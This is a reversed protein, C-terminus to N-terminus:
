DISSVVAKISNLSKTLLRYKKQNNSNKLVNLASQLKEKDVKYKKLFYKTYKDDILNLEQVLKFPWFESSWEVYRDQVNNENKYKITKKEHKFVDKYAINDAIIAEVVKNQSLLTQVMSEADDSGPIEASEDAIVDGRTAGSEDDLVEDISSEGFRCNKHLNADYVLAPVGRTSLVQNICAQANTHREPDQWARYQCAASICDFLLNLLDHREVNITKCRNYMRDITYWFRLILASCYINKNKSDKEDIAKCYSNALEDISYDEYRKPLLRATAIFDRKAAYLDM